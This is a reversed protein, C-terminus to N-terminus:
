PLQQEQLIKTITYHIHPSHGYDLFHAVRKILHYANLDYYTGSTAPAVLSSASSVNSYIFAIFNLVHVVLENSDTRPTVSEIFLCARSFDLYSVSSNAPYFYLPLYKDFM